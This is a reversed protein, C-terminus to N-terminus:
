QEEATDVKLIEREHKHLLVDESIIFVQLEVGTPRHYVSSFPLTGM